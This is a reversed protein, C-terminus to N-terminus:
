DGTKGSALRSGDTEDLVCRFGRTEYRAQPHLRNRFSTEFGDMLSDLCSAGRQLRFRQGGGDDALRPWTHLVEATNMEKRYWDDCWELANGELDYIGNANATFRGVPSTRPFGDEYGTLVGFANTGGPWNEDRAERGALNGTDAPPPWTDGWPYRGDGAALTWETDTPLRFVASVDISGRRREQDTLWRCFAMADEWSVGSVPHDETQPYRPSDWSYGLQEWVNSTLSWVGKTADYGTDEVFSRFDRVRTEWISM